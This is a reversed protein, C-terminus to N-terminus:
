CGKLLKVQVDSLKLDRKGENKIVFEHSRPEATTLIDGFDYTTEPTVAKPPGGAACGAALVAVALFLVLWIRKL